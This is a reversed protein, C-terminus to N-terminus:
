NEEEHYNIGPAPRHSPIPLRLDGVPLEADPVAGVRLEPNPAEGVPLETTWSCQHRHRIATSVKESCRPPPKGCEALTIGWRPPPKRRELGPDPGFHPRSTHSVEGAVLVLVAPTSSVEGAICEPTGDWRKSPRACELAWSSDFRPGPIHWCERVIRDGLRRPVGDPHAVVDEARKTWSAIGWAVPSVTPGGHADGSV